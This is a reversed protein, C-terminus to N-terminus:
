SGVSSSCTSLFVRAVRPCEGWGGTGEVDGLVAQRQSGPKYGVHMNM